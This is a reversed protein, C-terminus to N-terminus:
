TADNWDYDVPCLLRGTSDNYFERGSKDDRSLPPDPKLSSSMLWNVVDVKLLHTDDSRM